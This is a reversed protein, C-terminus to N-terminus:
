LTTFQYIIPLHYKYLVVTDFLQRVTYAPTHGSKGALSKLNMKAKSSIPNSNPKNKPSRFCRKKQLGKNFNLKRENQGNRFNPKNIRVSFDDNKRYDKALTLNVNMKAKKFNPKIPNSNPKNEGLTWNSKNEYYMTYFFSVDNSKKPFQSQKAYFPNIQLPSEVSTSIGLNAFDSIRLELDSVIDFYLHDLNLVKGQKGFLPKHAHIQQYSFTRNEAIDIAQHRNINAQQSVYPCKLTNDLMTLLFIVLIASKKAVSNSVSQCLSKLCPSFVGPGRCFLFNALMPPLSLFCTLAEPPLSRPQNKPTKPPFKSSKRQGPHYNRTNSLSADRLSVKLFHSLPLFIAQHTAYRGSNHFQYFGKIPTNFCIM